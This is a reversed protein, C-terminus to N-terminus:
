VTYCLLSFLLPLPPPENRAKFYLCVEEPLGHSWLCRLDLALADILLRVLSLRFGPWDFVDEADADEVKATGDEM